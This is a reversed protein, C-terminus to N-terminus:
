STLVLQELIDIAEQYDYQEFLVLATKVDPQLRFDEAAESIHLVADAQTYTGRLSPSISDAVSQMRKMYWIAKKIDDSMSNKNNCRMLYKVVNFYCGWYISINPCRREIVKVPEFYARGDSDMREGAHYHKPKEVVDFETM